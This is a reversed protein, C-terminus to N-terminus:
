LYLKGWSTQATVVLQHDALLGSLLGVFLDASYFGNAIFFICVRNFKCISTNVWPVQGCLLIGFFWNAFKCRLELFSAVCVVSMFAYKFRCAVKLCWLKEVFLAHFLHYSTQLVTSHVSITSCFTPNSSIRKKARLSSKRIPDVWQMTTTGSWNWRGFYVLKEKFMAACVGQTNVQYSYPLKFKYSSLIRCIAIQAQTVQSDNAESGSNCFFVKALKTATFMDILEAALDQIPSFTENCHIIIWPDRISSESCFNCYPSIM